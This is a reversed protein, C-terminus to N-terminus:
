EDLFSKGYEKEYLFEWDEITTVNQETSGCEKCYSNRSSESEKVIGLSLCNICYYVPIDNYDQKM